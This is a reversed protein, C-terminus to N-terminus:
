GGKGWAGGVESLYDRGSPSDESFTATQSVGYYGPPSAVSPPFSYLGLLTLPVLHSHVCRQRTCGRPQWQWVSAAGPWGRAGGCPRGVAGAGGHRLREAPGQGWGSGKGGEVWGSGLRVGAGQAAQRRPM